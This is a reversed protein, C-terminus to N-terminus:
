EDLRVTKPSIEWDSTEAGLADYDTYEGRRAKEKAEDLTDALIYFTVGELTVRGKGTYIM